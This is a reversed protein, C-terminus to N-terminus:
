FKIAAGIRGIPSYSSGTVGNTQTPWIVDGFAVFKNSLRREIGTVFVFNSGQGISSQYNSQGNNTLAWQGGGGLYINTNSVKTGNSLATKGISWDYTGLVGIASGINSDPGASFNVYPRLSVEGGLVSAVPVRGVVSAGAVTDNFDKGGGNVGQRNLTVSAGLYTGIGKDKVENRVELASVRTNTVAIERSFEARLAAASRADAETYFQTISDLCANTLAALEARTAPQGPRFTRDPYGAVCGYTTILNSIAQYSWETPQIDRLQTISTVQAMAPAVFSAAVLATVAFISNNKMTKVTKISFSLYDLENLATLLKRQIHPFTL